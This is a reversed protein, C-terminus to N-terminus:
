ARLDDARPPAGVRHRLGSEVPFDALREVAHDGGAHDPRHDARTERKRSPGFRHAQDLFSARGALHDEIDLGILSPPTSFSFPMSSILARTPSCSPTLSQCSTVWSSM